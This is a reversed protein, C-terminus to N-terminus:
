PSSCIMMPASAARNTGKINSLMVIAGAAAPTVARDITGANSIYAMRATTNIQSPTPENKARRQALASVKTNAQSHSMQPTIPMIAQPKM